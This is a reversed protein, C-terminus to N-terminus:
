LLSNVVFRGDNTKKGVAYKVFGAKEIGRISSINTNKVIMYMEKEPMDNQIYSLLLPYFGKGRAEPITECYCIHVGDKPLFVYTPVKSILVAKSIVKNGSMVDYEKFVRHFGRVLFSMVQYYCYKKRGIQMAHM